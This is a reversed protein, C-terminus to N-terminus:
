EFPNVASDLVRHVNVSWASNGHRNTHAKYVLHRSELLRFARSVTTLSKGLYTAYYQQGYATVGGGDFDARHAVLYMLRRQTESLHPILGIAELWGFKGRTAMGRFLTNGYVEDM